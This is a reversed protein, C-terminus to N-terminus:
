IHQCEFQIPMVEHPIFVEPDHVIFGDDVVKEFYPKILNNYIKDEDSATLIIPVKSNPILKSLLGYFEDEDPFIIDVDEFLL